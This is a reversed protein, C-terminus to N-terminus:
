KLADVLSRFVPSEGLLRPGLDLLRQVQEPTLSYNTGIKNFSRQEEPDTLAGFAVEIPYFQVPALEGEPLRADPCVGKVIARCQDLVNADRNWEKINSRLLEVTEFSYNQMPATSVTKLVEVLGPTRETRDLRV